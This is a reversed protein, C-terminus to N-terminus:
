SSCGLGPSQAGCPCIMYLFLSFLDYLSFPFIFWELFLLITKKQITKSLLFHLRSEFKM